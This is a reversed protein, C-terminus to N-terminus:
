RICGGGGANEKEFGKFPNFACRRCSKKAELNSFLAHACLLRLTEPSIRVNQVSEGVGCNVSTQIHRYTYFRFGRLTSNLIFDFITAWIGSLVYM